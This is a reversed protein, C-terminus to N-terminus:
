GAGQPQRDSDWTKVDLLVLDIAELDDDSLKDGYYGNTDLATHIGMKKAATFLNAVFPHQMLPEGGSITLGGSMVKLGQRYKRLEDSARAVTVPMGNSMTWTDPNHCYVCRWMCGTTWAVVRVGPGQVTAGSTYTSLLASRV